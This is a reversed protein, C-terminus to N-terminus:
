PVGRVDAGKEGWSYHCNTAVGMEGKHEHQKDEDGGEHKHQKNGDGRGQMRMRM